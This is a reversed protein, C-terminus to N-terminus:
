ARVAPTPQALSYCLVPSAARQTRRRRRVSKCWCTGVSFPAAYGYVFARATPFTSYCHAACASGGDAALVVQSLDNGACDNDDPKLQVFGVGLAPPPSAPCAASHYLDVSYVCTLYEGAYGYGAGATPDCYMTITAERPGPPSKADCFAGGSLQASSSSSPLSAVAPTRSLLILTISSSASVSLVSVVSLRASM